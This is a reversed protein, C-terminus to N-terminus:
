VYSFVFSVDFKLLDSQTSNSHLAGGKKIKKGRKIKKIKQHPPPPLNTLDPISFKKSEVKRVSTVAGRRKKKLSHVLVFVFSM